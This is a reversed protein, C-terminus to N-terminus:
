RPFTLKLSPHTFTDKLSLEGSRSAPLPSLRLFRVRFIGCSIKPNYIVLKRSLVVSFKSSSKKSVPVSVDEESALLYEISIVM